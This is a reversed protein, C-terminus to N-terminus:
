GNSSFIQYIAALPISAWILYLVLSFLAFFIYVAAGVLTRASRFIFGWFYGILSYDQYLPQFLNKFTIRLAFIKDLKELINYSWHVWRLFGDLYWHRAFNFIASGLRQALFVFSIDM